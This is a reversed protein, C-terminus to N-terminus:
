TMLSPGKYIPSIGKYFSSSVHIEREVMPPYPLFSAMQLGALFIEGM